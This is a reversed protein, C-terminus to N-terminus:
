MTEFNYKRNRLDFADRGGEMISTIVTRIDPTEIAGDVDIQIRGATGDDQEGEGARLAIVKDADGNVVINPNHTSFLLQRRDKSRRILSVIKMIIRNDLDDEPQDIILTGASQSLLLELLASAQQGPSAKGFPIGKGGDMYTLAIQDRPTAACIESLRDDDLNQFIRQAQQDTLTSASFITDKLESLTPEGIEVPLGSMIKVRYLRVLKDRFQSWTVPANFVCFDKVREKSKLEVDHVRCGSLLKVMAIVYEGPEPDALHKAKLLGSSQKEVKYAAESLVRVREHLLKDLNGCAEAFEAPADKKAEEDEAIQLEAAEAKTLEEALRAREALLQKQATQAAIAEQLLIQFVKNRDEFAGLSRVYAEGLTNMEAVAADIHKMVNSRAVTFAEDLERIEDFGEAGQFSSVRANLFNSKISILRETDTVRVRNALGQYNKARDYIASQTLAAMTEKSVGEKELRTSIAQLRRRLDAVASQARRRELQIQWFATQNRLATGVARKAKDIDTDIQRRRDLQEAAAIGTIQESARLPNNMTTSLGKQPFARARFRRQADEISIETQEDDTTVTITDRDQFTRRWTERLGEREIVVEVLGDPDLTDDILEAARDYNDEDNRVVDKPMRGLGFRLYELLSSKGSGRGGIIATFGENLSISFLDPGTLSSRVRLEVIRELPLAPTTHSIRAEDALLAQRLAEITGEGLKIWCEHAGLRDWTPSRNDGTAIIARRRKGWNEINGWVKDLTVPELESYPKEIYVGDCAISSFREHHGQVNLHKHANGDSFHPIIVCFDRLVKDSAVAEVFDLVTMNAVATEATKADEVPAQTIGKLKGLLHTWTTQPCSPDVFALCQANDACTVEVGPLVLASGERVSSAVVYPVFTMDHHDTVAILEINRTKCEHIFSDAWAARAAEFDPTGGPLNPPATWARDRPSHCQLDAKRWTAGPHHGKKFPM